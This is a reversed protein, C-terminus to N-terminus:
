ATPLGNSGISPLIAYNWQPHFADRDINVANLQKDSIKIGIPYTSTDLAAEIRLGTKTKTNAILDVITEHSTLPRGRWNLTIQSFMRHEIKNWKSTGPPFHSVHFELGTADALRQLETKWARVRSGNSGGSDATIMVRRSNPYAPEGMKEWWQGITAVAFQATDHDVGVSVWGVNREQEYVGYPIGHIVEGDADRQGFDHTEVEEVHGQPEYERGGNKYNGIKEKKKTDVSVVPDGAELFEQSKQAIYQFQADRDPHQRGERTKRNAKLRYNLKVLLKAVTGANIAFGRETLEDALHQQSKSTWRLPSEPDGRTHPDVLKELEEKVGPVQQEIPKRGGGQRRIRAKGQDAIPRGQVECMGAKVTVPSVGCAEAVLALGGRGLALVEAGLWCRRGREDLQGKLLEYRKGIERRKAELLERRKPARDEGVDAREEKEAPGVGEERLRETAERELPYVFVQQGGRQAGRHERDMRGRGTTQGVKRWNAARYCTGEHEASVVTELLLPKIGYAREWDSPFQRAMQGLIRSALHEVHVWPVILFRSNNVVKQLNARHGETSWGIFEDRAKMKWAPSSLQLCGVVKPLPCCIEVLYRLHAGVPVSCGEPHHREVLERWQRRQEATEVLHLKVPAVDVLQARLEGEPERAPSPSIKTKSGRPRGRRSAAPLEIQGSAELLELLERAEATKVGGNPRRWDLLECVTNALEQRSLRGFTSVVDRIVELEDSGFGRGKFTMVSGDAAM